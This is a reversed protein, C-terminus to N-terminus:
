GKNIKDRVIMILQGLHNEGKGTKLDVGWYTDGWRNGEQLYEKGTALLKRKMEPNSFKQELLQLMIKIKIEEWNPKIEVHRGMRKADGPTTAKLIKEADKFHLCKKVQYLHEVTIGDFWWFNSLFRYNGQFEKIM